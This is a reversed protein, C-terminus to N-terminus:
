FCCAIGKRDELCFEFAVFVDLEGFDGGECAAGDSVDGVVANLVKLGFGGVGGEGVRQVDWFCYEHECVCNDDVIMDELVDFDNRM